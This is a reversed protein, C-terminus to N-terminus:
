RRASIASELEGLFVKALGDRLVFDMAPPETGDPLALTVRAVRTRTTGSVEAYSETTVNERTAGVAGLPWAGVVRQPRCIPPGHKARLLVVRDATLALLSTRGLQDAASGTRPALSRRLWRPGKRWSDQTTGARLFWGIAVVPEGVLPESLEILQARVREFDKM